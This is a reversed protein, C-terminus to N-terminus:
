RVERQGRHDPADDGGTRGARAFFAAGFVDLGECDQTRAGVRVNYRKVGPGANRSGYGDSGTGIGDHNGIGADWADGCLRGGPSAQDVVESGAGPM